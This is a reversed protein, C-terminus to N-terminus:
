QANVTEIQAEGAAKGHVIQVGKSLVRHALPRSVDVDLTSTTGPTPPEDQEVAPAAPSDGSPTTAAMSTAATENLVAMGTVPMPATASAVQPGSAGHEPKALSRLSLSLEGLDRIAAVQEAQKPTVEITVTNISKAEGDIDNLTRETALIRVNELFTEASRPSYSGTESAAGQAGDLSPMTQVLLLDTRDGPFVLGAVSTRENVNITVARMGPTLVAALFGRDGPRAIQAETIPTGAVIGRRVVAGVVGSTDNQGEVLYAENVGEAPWKQWTMDEEKIFSGAPLNVKAVLVKKGPQEQVQAVPEPRPGSLMGRVLFATGGAVLLAAFLFIITRANM